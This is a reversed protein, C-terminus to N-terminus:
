GTFRGYFGSLRTLAEHSDCQTIRGQELLCVRDVLRLAAPRHTAVLTTRGRMLTRLIDLIAAETEIDLASTPEDLLLVPANKLFARALSLRQIEGTSLRQHSEGVLTGFGAPLAQIFSDARAQRAALEIEELRAGPRGFAINEAITGPFLVPEQPVLAVLSRLDRLRLERLDIGEMLVRGQEPDHFRPILHLLTTKGAGSHGALAIWEGARINLNVESLAPRGAQYGFSVNELSLHGAVPVARADSSSVDAGGSSSTAPAASVASRASPSDAIPSPRDLLEFVRQTGAWADSATAGLHSLQNLPEHFQALYALFVLLGGLTAQGSLVRTAGLWIVAATGAAFLLGVALLYFVEWRHQDMRCGLATRTMGAFRESEHRERTFSQIIPLASLTQQIRSSLQGDAQHALLSRRHMQGGFTRMAIGLAPALALAVATLVLDIRAMVVLMLALTLLGHTLKFVGQQFLTQFAYVDWTARYLLDGASASQLQRPSLGQLHDFLARRVRALGGLGARIALYEYGASLLIQAAQAALTAGALLLLQVPRDWSALARPWWAPQPAHGLVHDVMLALPWPRLLGAVISALLLALALAMRLREARFFGLVRFLRNM